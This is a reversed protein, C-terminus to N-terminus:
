IDGPVELFEIRAIQDYNVQSRQSFKPFFQLQEKSIQEILYVDQIVTGDKLYINGFAMGSTNKPSQEDQFIRLYEELSWFRDPMYQNLNLSSLAYIRGVNSVQFNRYSEVEITRDSYSPRYGKLYFDGRDDEYVELNKLDNPNHPDMVQVRFSVPQPDEATSKKLPPLIGKIYIAHGSNGSEVAAILLSNSSSSLTPLLKVSQSVLSISTPLNKKFVTNFIESYLDEFASFPVGRTGDINKNEKLKTLITDLLKTHLRKINSEFLDISTKLGTVIGPYLSEAIILMSNTMCISSCTGGTLEAPLYNADQRLLLNNAILRDTTEVIDQHRLSEVPVGKSVEKRCWFLGAYSTQCMVLLYVFLLTGSGKINRM